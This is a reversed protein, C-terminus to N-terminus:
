GNYKKRQVITEISSIGVLVIAIIWLFIKGRVPIELNGFLLWGILVSGGCMNIAIAGALGLGVWQDKPRRNREILLGIGIGVFVGGMVSPYFSQEVKPVGLLETIQEPYPIALLLLAGLIFNIIADIKLLKDKM